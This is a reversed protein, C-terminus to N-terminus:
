GEAEVLVVDRCWDELTRCVLEHRTVDLRRATEDVAAWHVDDLAPAPLTDYPGPPRPPLGVPVSGRAAARVIESVLAYLSLNMSAATAVLKDYTATCVKPSSHRKAGRYRWGPPAM